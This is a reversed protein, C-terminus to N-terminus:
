LISSFVKIDSSTLCLESYNSYINKLERFEKEQGELETYLDDSPNTEMFEDEMPEYVDVFSINAVNGPYKMEKYVDFKVVEGDFEMTLIGSRVDIKTNTMSLFPRGLLINSFSNTRVNEM